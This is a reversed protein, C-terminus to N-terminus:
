CWGSVGSRLAYLLLLLTLVAGPSPSSFTYLLKFPMIIRKKKKKEETYHCMQVLLQYVTLIDTMSAIFEQSQM